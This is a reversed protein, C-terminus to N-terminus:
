WQGNQSLEEIKYFHNQKMSDEGRYWKVEALHCTFALAVSFRHRTKEDKIAKHRSCHARCMFFM